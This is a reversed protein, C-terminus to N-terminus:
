PKAVIVRAGSDQLMQVDDESTQSDVVIVDIDALKGFSYMARRKFKTHDLLLITLESSEMMKAKVAAVDAYPHYVTGNRIGSASILCIDAHVAELNSITVPGMTAAAWSQYEGGLVLLSHRSEEELERAVLLSNTIVSIPASDALERLVWVGSTSDDLMVSSGPPILAAVAKAIQKKSTAEQKLRYSATAEHLGSAAAVVKGRHKHLIGASELAAVDRYVTMLSVGTYTALDEVSVEGHEIVRKAIARRRQSQDGLHRNMKSILKSEGESM